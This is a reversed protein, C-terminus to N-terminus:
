NRGRFILRQDAFQFEWPGYRLIEVPAHNREYLEERVDPVGLLQEVSGISAGRKLSSIGDFTTAPESLDIPKRDLEHFRRTLEDEIFILRWTAYTLSGEDNSVFESTPEGLSDKVEGM